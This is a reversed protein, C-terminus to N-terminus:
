SLAFSSLYVGINGLEGIESQTQRKSGHAIDAVDQKIESTMGKRKSTKTPESSKSKQLGILKTKLNETSNIFAAKFYIFDM